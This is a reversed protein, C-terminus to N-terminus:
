KRFYQLLAYFEPEQLYIHNKELIDKLKNFTQDTKNLNMETGVLDYQKNFYYRNVMLLVHLLLGKERTSNLQDSLESVIERYVEFGKFIIEESLAEENKPIIPPEVLQRSKRDDPIHQLIQDVESQIAQYDISRPWSSIVIVHKPSDIPYISVILDIDYKKCMRDVDMISCYAVLQINKIHSELRHKILRAVGRGTSCVYLTRVKKEVSKMEEYSVLFHLVILSVFSEQVVQELTIYKECAEYVHQFLRPHERKIDANMPNFENRIIRRKGLRLSLHAFLNDHLKSDKTFPLDEEQSVYQVIRKTLELTDINSQNFRASGFCYIYENELIPLSLEHYASEVLEVMQFDTDDSLKSRDLLQYGGMTFGLQMRKLSITLRILVTLIDMSQWKKVVDDEFYRSIKNEIIRYVDSIQKDLMHYFHYGRAGGMIGETLRYVEYNNMSNMILDEIMIRIKIEEGIVIYGHRKVRVLDVGWREAHESVVDMDNLITNRSVTFERALKEATVPYKSFGLFILIRVVRTEQNSYLQTHELKFLENRLEMLKNSDCEIWYGKSPKSILPVGQEEFWDKIKKLDYKITRLSVDFEDAFHQAQVAISTNLIQNIIQLERISLM